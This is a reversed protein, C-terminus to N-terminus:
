PIIWLMVLFLPAKPSRSESEGGCERSLGLGRPNLLPGFGLRVPRGRHQRLRSNDRKFLRAHREHDVAEHDSRIPLRWDLIRDDERIM